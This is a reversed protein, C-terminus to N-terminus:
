RILFPMFNRFPNTVMLSWPDSWFGQITEQNAQVKWYWIGVPLDESITYSLGALTQDVEPDSFGPDDDILLRYSSAGNVASWSLIPKWGHWTSGDVPGILVPAPFLVDLSTSNSTGDPRGTAHVQFTDLTYSGVQMAQVTVVIECTDAGGPLYDNPALTGGALTIQPVTSVDVIGGCQSPSAETVVLGSPLLALFNVGNAALYNPNTLTLSLDIQSNVAISGEAFSQSAIIAPFVLDVTFDQLTIGGTVNGADDTAWVTIKADNRQISQTILPSSCGYYKQDSSATDCYSGDDKLQLNNPGGLESLDAIVNVIDPNNDGTVSNDWRVRVTDGIVFVGGTGSAGTVSITANAVTPPQLDVAVSNSPLHYSRGDSDTATVTVMAAGTDIPNPTLLLTDAYVQSGPSSDMPEDSSGGLQSLDVTVLIINPINNGPISNDWYVTVTDGINFPSSGSGYLLVPSVSPSNISHNSAGPYPNAQVISPNILLLLNISTILTYIVLKRWKMHGGPIRNKEELREVPM